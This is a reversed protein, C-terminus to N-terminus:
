PSQRHFISKPLIPIRLTDVIMHAMFFQPQRHLSTGWPRGLPPTHPPSIKNYNFPCSFISQNPNKKRACVRTGSAGKMVNKVGGRGFLPYRHIKRKQFNVLNLQRSFISQHPYFHTLMYGLVM